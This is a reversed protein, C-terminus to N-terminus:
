RFRQDLCRSRPTPRGDSDGVVTNHLCKRIRRLSCGFKVDLNNVAHFSIEDFFVKLLLVCVMDNKKRLVRVAQSVEILHNRKRVQFIQMTLWAKGLM